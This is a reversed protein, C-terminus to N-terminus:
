EGSASLREHISSLTEFEKKYRWSSSAQVAFDCLCSQLLFTVAASDRDLVQHVLAPGFSQSFSDIDKKRIEFRSSRGPRYKEWQETLSAAVQFINENLDRVIGLVDAESRRDATSLFSQAGSLEKSRADLLENTRTLEDELAQIRQDRKAVARRNTRSDEELRHELEAIREKAARHKRLYRERLNSLMSLEAKQTDIVTRRRGVMGEAVRQRGKVESSELKSGEVSAPLHEPSQIKLNEIDIRMTSNNFLTNFPPLHVHVPPFGFPM